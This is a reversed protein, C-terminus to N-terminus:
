IAESPVFPGGPWGYVGDLGLLNDFDSEGPHLEGPMPLMGFDEGIPCRMAAAVTKHHHVRMRDGKVRYFWIPAQPTTM